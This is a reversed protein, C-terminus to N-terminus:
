NGPTATSRVPPSWWQRTQSRGAEGPEIRSEVEGLGVTEIRKPDDRGSWMVGVTVVVALGSALAATFSVRRRRRRQRARAGLVELPEPAAPPRDILPRLADKLDVVLHWRRTTRITSGSGAPSTEGRQTCRRRPPGPLWGWPM